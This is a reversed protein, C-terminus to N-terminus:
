NMYRQYNKNTILRFPINIHKDVPYGAMMNVLASVAGMGQGRADQLVTTDLVGNEMAHLADRTADIGGIIMARPDQGAKELALIAGLAMEDNNAAIINIDPHSQLWNSTLSFANNRQWLATDEVVLSMDAYKAIVERAYRSREIAAPHDDPGRLLAVKGKYDALRALEEMQLTGADKDNSGVYVVGDPLTAIEPKRNLLVLPTNAERAIAIVQEVHSATSSAVLVILGDVGEKVYHRLQQLQMEPNEEADGVYLERGRQEAAQEMATRLMSQFNDHYRTLSAAIIEANIPSSLAFLGAILAAQTLSRSM